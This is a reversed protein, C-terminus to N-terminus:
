STYCGRKRLDSGGCSGQIVDRNGYMVAGMTVGYLLGTEM